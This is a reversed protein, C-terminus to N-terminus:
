QTPTSYPNSPISTRPYPQPRKQKRMRMHLAHVSTRTPSGTTCTEHAHAQAHTSPHTGHLWWGSLWSALMRGCARWAHHSVHQRVEITVRAPPEDPTPGPQEVELLQRGQRPQLQIHLALPLIPRRGRTDVACFKATVRTALPLSTLALGGAPRLEAIMDPKTCLALRLEDCTWCMERTLTDHMCAEVLAHGDCMHETLSPSTFSLTTSDVLKAPLEISADREAARFAWNPDAASPLAQLLTIRVTYLAGRRFGTGRLIIVAGGATDVTAPEVADITIAQPHMADIRVDALQAEDACSGDDRQGGVMLLRSTGLRTLSHSARPEAPTAQRWVAEWAGPEADM